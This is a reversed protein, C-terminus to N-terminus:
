LNMRILGIIVGQILLEGPNLIIPEHRGDSGELRIYAGEPFFRKVLTNNQHLSGVLMEGERAESRAEILILDGDLIHEDILTDGKARMLYTDEPHPVLAAPVSLMQSQPFTEIPFGAALYGILPLICEHSSESQRTPPSLSIATRKQDVFLGKKKLTKIYTYVSGLSAFHFETQIDRFTPSYGKEQIFATVYDFIKRQSKTLSKM